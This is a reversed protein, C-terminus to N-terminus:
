HRRKKREKRGTRRTTARIAIGCRQGPEAAVGMMVAWITKSSIGTDTSLIWENPNM